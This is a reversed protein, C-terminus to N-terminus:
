DQQWESSWVSLSLLSLIPFSLILYPIQFSFCNNQAGIRFPSLMAPNNTIAASRIRIQGLPTVVAENHERWQEERCLGWQQGTGMTRLGGNNEFLIYLAGFQGTTLLVGRGGIQVM